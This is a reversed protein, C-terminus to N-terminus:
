QFRPDGRLRHMKDLIQERTAHPFERFFAAWEQNFAGSFRQHPGTPGGEVWRGFRPDNNDLRVRDWHRQFRSAQPLDHHAQPRIMGPPPDGMRARLTGRPASAGPRAQRAQDATRRAREAREARRLRDIEDTVRRSAQELQARTISNDTSEVVLRGDERRLRMGRPLVRALQPLLRGAVALEPGPVVITIACAAVYFTYEGVQRVLRAHESLHHLVNKRHANDWLEAIRTDVNGDTTKPYVIREPAVNLPTGPPRYTVHLLGANRDYRILEIGRGLDRRQYVGPSM